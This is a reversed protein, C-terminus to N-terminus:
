GSPSASVVDRAREPCRRYPGAMGSEGLDETSLSSILAIAAMTGSSM